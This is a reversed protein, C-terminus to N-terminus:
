QRTTVKKRISAFCDVVGMIIYILFINALPIMASLFMSGLFLLGHILIRVGTRPVKRRLLFDTLSLGACFSLFLFVVFGNMGVLRVMDAPVFILGLMIGGFCVTPISLRLGSFSHGNDLPTGRLSKSVLWMVIYGAVLSTVILASPICGRVVDKMADLMSQALSAYMSSDGGQQTIATGAADFAPEVGSFIYDVISMGQSGAAQKLNLAQGLGYGASTFLLGAPFAMRKVTALICLSSSLILQMAFFGGYAAGYGCVFCLLGGALATAATVIGGYVGGRSVTIMVLNYACFCFAVLPWGMALPLLSILLRMSLFMIYNNENM